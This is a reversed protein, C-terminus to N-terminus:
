RRKKPAFSHMACPLPQIEKENEPESSFSLALPLFGTQILCKPTGGNEPSLGHMLHRPLSFPAGRKNGAHPVAENRLAQRVASDLPVIATILV